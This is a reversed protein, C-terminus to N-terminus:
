RGFHRWMRIFKIEARVSAISEVGRHQRSHVAEEAGDRGRM